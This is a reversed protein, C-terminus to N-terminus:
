LLLKLRALFCTPGRGTELLHSRLSSNGFDLHLLICGSKLLRLEAQYILCSVIIHRDNLLWADRLSINLSSLRSIQLSILLDIQHICQMSEFFSILVFSSLLDINTLNLALILIVAIAIM